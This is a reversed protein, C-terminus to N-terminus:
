VLLILAAFEFQVRYIITLDVLWHHAMINKVRMTCNNTPIVNQITSQANRWKSKVANQVDVSNECFSSPSILDVFAVTNLIEEPTKGLFQLDRIVPANKFEGNRAM